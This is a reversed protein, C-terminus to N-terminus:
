DLSTVSSHIPGWGWLPAKRIPAVEDVIDQISSILHTGRIGLGEIDIYVMLYKLFYKWFWLGGSEWNDRSVSGFYEKVGADIIDMRRISSMISEM